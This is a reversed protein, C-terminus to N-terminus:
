NRMKVCHPHNLTRTMLWGPCHHTIVALWSMLTGAGECVCTLTGAGECVCTLTGAGECVCTL